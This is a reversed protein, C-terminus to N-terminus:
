PTLFVDLRVDPQRHDPVVKRVRGSLHFGSDILSALARNDIGPVYGLKTGSATFVAIARADYDNLHERHLLVLEGARLASAADAAHYATGAVYTWLLVVEKGEATLVTPAAFLAGGLAGGTGLLINRRVQDM